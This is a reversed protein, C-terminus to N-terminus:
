NRRTLEFDTPTSNTKCFCTLYRKLHQRFPFSTCFLAVPNLCSNILLFGTSILYTYQFQYNTHDLIFTFKFSSLEKESYIFYTWFAHYPVYSIMFVVALGLVIKATIRRTKMQPNQTGESLSRSSEVLLRATMVYSFAVVCLPLLCSVLLEFIVVLHYYSINRSLFLRECMYKSLASPVAFLAAVIWVGCITAVTIRWTAQGSVHVQFPNVTIRYRQFSFLAVSYASLGVSIRRCFPLFMCMFDGDLWRSSIRNLYAESFLVTLYIIDSIALNLIYMNPVTRMDKNCIIIILLIVNSITGFVFPFVYIPVQYLKFFNVDYEYSYKQDVDTYSYSTSNYDGHYQINGELCQGKELVGWWLGKVETPTDCEGFGTLINRDKFWRWVEQLQCDCHLPNSYLYMKSLKPLAGLINIDVTRLKNYGLDLLELASVNVFTEVSLSSVNCKSIDLHSLSLSNIFNRGTLIQLGPNYYLYLTQLNPLLLFTDPHIYQLKNQRLLVYKLNVLGSFVASDLHKLRNDDM